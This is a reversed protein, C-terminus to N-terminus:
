AHCASRARHPATPQCHVRVPYHRHRSAGRYVRHYAAVGSVCARDPPQTHTTRTHPLCAGMAGGILKRVPGSYIHNRHQAIRLLTLLLHLTYAREDYYARRVETLTSLQFGSTMDSGGASHWVDFCQVQHLNLLEACDFVFQKQADTTRVCTPARTVLCACAHTCWVGCGCARGVLGHCRRALVLPDACAGTLTVTESTGRVPVTGTQITRVPPSGEGGRPKFYRLLGSVRKVVADQALVEAVDEVPWQLEELVQNLLRPNSRCQEKLSKLESDDAM